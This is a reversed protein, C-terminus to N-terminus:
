EGKRPRHNKRTLNGRSRPRRYSQREPTTRNRRSPRAGGVLAAPLRGKKPPTDTTVRLKDNTSMERSKVIVNKLRNSWGSRGSNYARHLDAATATSSNTNIWKIL